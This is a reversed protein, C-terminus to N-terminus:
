CFPDVYRSWRKCFEQIYGRDCDHLLKKQGTHHWEECCTIKGSDDTGVLLITFFGTKILGAMAQYQGRAIKGSRLVSEHKFEFRLFRGKIEVEGDGDTPLIGRPFCGELWSYVHVKSRIYEVPDRIGAAQCDRLFDSIARDELTM